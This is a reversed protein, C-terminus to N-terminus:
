SKHLQFDQDGDILYHFSYSGYGLVNVVPNDTPSGVSIYFDERIVPMIPCFKTQQAGNPGELTRMRSWILGWATTSTTVGGPVRVPILDTFGGLQLGSGDYIEAQRKTLNVATPFIPSVAFLRAESSPMPARDGGLTRYVAREERDAALNAASLSDSFLNKQSFSAGGGVPAVTFVDAFYAAAGGNLEAKGNLPHLITDANLLAFWWATELDDLWGDVFDDVSDLVIEPHRHVDGKDFQRLKEYPTPSTTSKGSKMSEPAPPTGPTRASWSNKGYARREVYDEAGDGVFIPDCINLFERQKTELVKGVRINTERELDAFDNAM